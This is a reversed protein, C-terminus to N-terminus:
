HKAFSFPSAQCPCQSTLSLPPSTAAMNSLQVQLLNRGISGLNPGQPHCQGWRRGVTIPDTGAPDIPLRPGTLDTLNAPLRLPIYSPRHQRYQFTHRSELRNSDGSLSEQMVPLCHLLSYIKYKKPIRQNLTYGEKFFFLSFCAVRATASLCYGEQKARRQM